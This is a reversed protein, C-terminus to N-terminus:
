SKQFCVLRVRGLVRSSVRGITKDFLILAGPPLFNVPPYTNFLKQSIFHLNYRAFYDSIGSVTADNYYKGEENILKKRKAAFSAIKYLSLYNIFDCVLFGGPRLVRSVEAQAGKYTAASAYGFSMVVDFYADPYPLLYVSGEEIKIRGEMGSFKVNERAREVCRQSVDCGIIKFNSMKALLIDIEGFGCGVDLAIGERTDGLLKMAHEATLAFTAKKPSTKTNVIQAYIEWKEKQTKIDQVM